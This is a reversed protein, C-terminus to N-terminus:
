DSEMQCNGVFVIPFLNLRLSFHRLKKLVKFGILLIPWTKLPQSFIKLAIIIEKRKRSRMTGNWILLFFLLSLAGTCYCLYYVQWYRGKFVLLNGKALAIVLYRPETDYWNLNKWYKGVWWEVQWQDTESQSLKPKM